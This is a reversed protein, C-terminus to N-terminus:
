MYGLWKLVLALLLVILALVLWMNARAWALARAGAERANQVTGAAKMMMRLQTDSLSSMQRAMVEAQARDKCMGSSMMMTTLAEPDMNKMMRVASEMMEPNSFMAAMGAGPSLGMSPGAPGGSTMGMKAAMEQMRAIDEPGMNKMMAAAATVMEPPFGGAAPIAAAVASQNNTAPAESAAADGQMAAAMEHVHSIDEATMNKMMEAAMKAMEPTLQIKDMGPVMKSMSALQEPSMASLMEAAMRPDVPPMGAVGPSRVAATANRGSTSATGSSAVRSEVGTNGSSEASSSPPAPQQQQQMKSVTQIAAQVEQPSMQKFSEAAAKAMEPTITVGPPLGVARSMEQLKEPDLSSLVQGMSAAMEPKQAMVEALRKMSEPNRIADPGRLDPPLEAQMRSVKAMLDMDMNGLGNRLIGPDVDMGMQRAMGRLDEDSMGGMMDQAQKVMDPNSRLMDSVRALDEPNPAPRGSSGSGGSGPASMSTSASASEPVLPGPVAPAAAAVGKPEAPPLKGAARLAGIQDKAEQLKERIPQAQSPDTQLALRLARDLDAAAAICNCSGLYAQGRRYLAKLNDPEGTLVQNCQEVCNDFQKLNLYCSSLNLTCARVLDRAEKSTFSEVNSKAREYKEAADKYAGRGHLQNGENKLQNSAQAAQRAITDPDMSAMQQKALEWDEPKMDKMQAMAQNMADPPMNRMMAQLQEPSMKRMQEMALKMMNADM